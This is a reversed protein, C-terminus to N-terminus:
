SGVAIFLVCYHCNLVLPVDVFFNINFGTWCWSFFHYFWWRSRKSAEFSMVMAVIAVIAVMATARMDWRLFHPHNLLPNAVQDAVKTQWGVDWWSLSLLVSSDSSCSIGRHEDWGMVATDQWRRWSVAVGSIVEANWSSSPAELEGIRVLAYIAMMAIVVCLRLTEAQPSQIVVLLCWLIDGGAFISVFKHIDIWRNGVCDQSLM